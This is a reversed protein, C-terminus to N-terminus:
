QFVCDRHNEIYFMEVLFCSCEISQWCGTQTAIISEPHNLHHWTIVCEQGAGRACFTEAIETAGLDWLKVDSFRWVGFSELLWAKDRESTGDGRVPKLSSRAFQVLPSHVSSEGFNSRFRLLLLALFCPKYCWKGHISMRSQILKSSIARDSLQSDKHSNSSFGINACTHVLTSQVHDMLVVVDVDLPSVHMWCGDGSMKAHEIIKLERAKM